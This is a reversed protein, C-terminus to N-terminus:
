PLVREERLQPKTCVVSHTYCGRIRRTRLYGRTRLRLGGAENQFKAYFRFATFLQLGFYKSGIPWRRVEVVASIRKFQDAIIHLYNNDYIYNGKGEANRGFNINNADDEAIADLTTLVSRMRHTVTPHTFVMEEGSVCSSHKNQRVSFWKRGISSLVQGRQRASGLRM